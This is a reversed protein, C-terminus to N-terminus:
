QYFILPMRLATQQSCASEGGTPTAIIARSSNSIGDGVYSLAFKRNIDNFRLHIEENDGVNLMMTEDGAVCRISASGGLYLHNYNLYTENGVNLTGSINSSGIVHINGDTELRYAGSPSMGIGLNGNALTLNTGNIPAIELNGNNGNHRLEHFNVLDGYIRMSNTASITGGVDLTSRPTISLNVGMTGNVDLKARPDPTGIGINGAGTIEVRNTNNTLLSIGASPNTTELAVGTASGINLEHGIDGMIEFGSNTAIDLRGEFRVGGNVHLRAIPNSTGIGVNGVNDFVIKNPIDGLRFGLGHDGFEAIASGQDDGLALLGNVWTSGNLYSTGEVFLKNEPNATGIGVNGNMRYVNDGDIVWDADPTPPASDAMAAHFAYGVSRFPKRPLLETGAFEVSLYASTDNFITQPIPNVQGLMTQFLGANTTLTDPEEWLVAGFEPADYIRFIVQYTADTIPGGNPRTLKGQFSIQGPTGAWAVAIIMAFLVILTVFLFRGSM